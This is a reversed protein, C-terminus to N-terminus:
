GQLDGFHGAQVQAVLPHQNAFIQIHGDLASRHAAIRADAGRQGGNLRGQGRFRAHEDHRMEPTGFLALVRLLKGQRRHGLAQRLQQANGHGELLVPKVADFDTGALDHQQLVHAEVLAFLLIGIFQGPAHRRQAVDIDHVREAGRMAGLGARVSDRFVRRDDAGARQQDALQRRELGRELFGRPRQQGDDGAGLDRGLERHQFGQQALHILEDDAAADGIGKKRSQAEVHALRQVFGVHEVDAPAQELLRFLAADDNGHRRIHHHRVSNEAFASASTLSTRWTDASSMIRSMPGSEASAIAASTPM